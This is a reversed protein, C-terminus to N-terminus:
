IEANKKRLETLQKTPDEQLECKMYTWINELPNLDPSRSSPWLLAKIKKRTSRSLLFRQVTSRNM